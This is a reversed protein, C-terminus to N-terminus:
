GFRGDIRAKALIPLYTMAFMLFSIIWLLQSLGILLSYDILNFLPVIVRIVASVLLIVLAYAVMKPPNSIDRGTHGLSVRAMMGMTLLGIGGVTFAHIALYQSVNTFRSLALLLFGFTIFWFSVYLSWLLSKKWIGHTHWGILRTANAIFLGIAFFASLTQQQLLIEVVFFGIFLVLGTIDLWKANFVTVKYGVGMEIFFPIVRRGMVLVLGLLLYLGGYIGWFIGNDLQQFAGLYFFINGLVLLAIKSVITIQKWQKAKIIPLSAAVLFLVSFLIDIIAALPLFSTGAFFLIRPILWLIFLGMLPKGHLTQVGTWNKIATLLFGAVVAMAYGYLMEHAHWQTISISEIPLQLNFLYIASWLALSLVTFIGAGLFFPRFALNFLPLKPTETKEFDVMM